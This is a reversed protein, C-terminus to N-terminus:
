SRRRQRRVRRRDRLLPVRLPRRRASVSAFIARGVGARPDATEEAMAASNEWGVFLFVALPVRAVAGLLWATCTARTLPKLNITGSHRILLAVAIVILLVLEFAFFM